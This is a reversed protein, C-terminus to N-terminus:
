TVAVPLCCAILRARRSDTCTKCVTPTRNLQVTTTYFLVTDGTPATVVIPEHSFVPAVVQRPEYRGDASSCVAHLVVSNQLWANIGCHNLMAAAFMHFNGDRGKVM